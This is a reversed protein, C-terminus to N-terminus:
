WNLADYAKQIYLFLTRLVAYRMSTMQQLFKSELTATGTGCGVRFGHLTNHYHIALNLCRNTIGTTTKWLVEVIGIGRLDKGNCKTILVVMHFASADELSGEQFAEQELAIVKRWNTNDPAEKRM